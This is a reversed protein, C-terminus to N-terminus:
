CIFSYGLAQTWESYGELAWFFNLSESVNVNFLFCEESIGKLCFLWFAKALEVILKIKHKYLIM